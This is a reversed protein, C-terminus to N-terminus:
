RRRWIAEKALALRAAVPKIERYFRRADTPYGATPKLGPLHGEWYRNFEHMLVERVYKSIMSALAVDFHEADARPQFTFRLMRDLGLVDYVSRTMAEERAVVLGDSLAHQLMAAYTNRGGHKDVIFSIAEDAPLQELNWRLLHTLAHGLIAGKSGWEELVQNFRRPCVVFSRVPGVSVQARRSAGAFLSAALAVDGTNAAMPLRTEGRYWPEGDLEALSSGVLIHLLEALNEPAPRGVVIALISKELDDLGRTPSYVLKSDEVLLRPDAPEEIRRVAERLLEWRCSKALRDPLRCAVSSMVFPGLNPGYGAEDIGVIWPM